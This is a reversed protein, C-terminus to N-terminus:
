SSKDSSYLITTAHVFGPVSYTSIGTTAGSIQRHGARGSLQLYNELIHPIGHIRGWGINGGGSLLPFEGKPDIRGDQIYQWAEGIGCFGLCEMWWLAVPLFGDYLQPVDVDSPHWGSRNWLKKAMYRTPEFMADLSGLTGPIPKYTNQVLGWDTIYVPQHPMDAAREATTVIFSGGGDVPIDNDFLCMPESITRATMYDEFTLEKGYWYAEPISQVNKRIQLALTAMHERKMGYRKQYEMYPMAIGSTGAVYGYPATWQTEGGALTETFSNYRGAPNHLTRNLLVYSAAGSAVAQVARVVAPPFSVDDYSWLTDLEMHEILFDADVFGYGPRLVRNSGYAPLSTATAVGDIQARTLGADKIAQDATEVALSAIPVDAHRRSKTIGYGVIAVKNRFQHKDVM